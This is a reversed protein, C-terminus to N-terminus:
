AQVNMFRNYHEVEDSNNELFFHPHFHRYQKDERKMGWQQMKARFEDAITHKKPTRWRKKGKHVRQGRVEPRPLCEALDLAVFCRAATRRSGGSVLGLRM